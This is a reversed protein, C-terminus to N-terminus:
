EGATEVVDELGLFTALRRAGKVVELADAENDTDLYIAIGTGAAGSRPERRRERRFRLATRALLDARDLLHALRDAEEYREQNQESERVRTHAEALELRLEVAVAVADEARPETIRHDPSAALVDPINHFRDHADVASTLLSVATEFRTERRAAEAANRAWRVAAGITEDDSGLLHHHAVEAAVVDGGELSRNALATAIRRHLVAVDAPERMELLARRVVDHPFAYRGQPRRAEVLGSRVGDELPDHLASPPTATASALLDLDFVPGIVAADALLAATKAPLQALRWQVVDALRHPVADRAARLATSADATGAVSRLLEQVFLPNGATGTTLWAVLDDDEPSLPKGTTQEVLQAV